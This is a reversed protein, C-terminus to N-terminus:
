IDFCVKIGKVLRDEYEDKTYVRASLFCSDYLNSIISDTDQAIPMSTGDEKVIWIATEDDAKSL